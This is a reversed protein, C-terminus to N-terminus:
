DNIGGKPIEDLTSNIQYTIDAKQVIELLKEGTEICKHAKEIISERDGEYDLFLNTERMFACVIGVRLHHIKSDFDSLSKYKSYLSNLHHEVTKIDIFLTSAIHENTFGKVVLEVIERERPTLAELFPTM